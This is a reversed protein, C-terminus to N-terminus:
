HSILFLRQYLPEAPYRPETTQAPTKDEVESQKSEHKRQLKNLLSYAVARRSFSFTVDDRTTQKKEDELVGDAFGLEIAKNANM